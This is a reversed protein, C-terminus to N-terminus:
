KMGYRQPNAKRHEDSFHRAAMTFAASMDLQLASALHHLDALIDTLTDQTVASHGTYAELAARAKGIRRLNEDQVSHNM